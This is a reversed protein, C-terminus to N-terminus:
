AITTAIWIAIRTCACHNYSPTFYYYVPPRPWRDDGDEAGPAGSARRRGLPEERKRKVGFVGEEVVMAALKM